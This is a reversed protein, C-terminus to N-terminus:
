NTFFILLLWLITLLRNKSQHISLFSSTYTRFVPLHIRNSNSDRGGLSLAASLGFGETCPAFLIYSVCVVAMFAAPALTIMYAKCHRALYVTAAWLPSVALTQNSWAFYCWLVTFDILLLTSEPGYLSHQSITYSINGHRCPCSIM